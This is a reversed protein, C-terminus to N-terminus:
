RLRLCVALLGGVISLWTQWSLSIPVLCLAAVGFVTGIVLVSSAREHCLFRRIVITVNGIACLATMGIFPAPLVWSAIAQLTEM